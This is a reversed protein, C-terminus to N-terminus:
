EQRDPYGGCCATTPGILHRTVELVNGRRPHCAALGAGSQRETAMGSGSIGLACGCAQQEGFRNPDYKGGTQREGADRCRVTQLRKDLFNQRQPSSLIELNFYTRPDDPDM